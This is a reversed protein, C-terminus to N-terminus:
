LSFPGNGFMNKRIDSRGAFDAAVECIDINDLINQHVHCMVVASLREQTMSNRLWTKLSRLSSFSREAECSSVPCLLMLRVLQEVETFMVRVEPKMAQLAQKADALTNCNFQLQLFMPLQVALRTTDLEPYARLVDVNPSVQGSCLVDEMILYQSLGHSEPNFRTDLQAVTTDIFLFYASRYHQEANPAVYATAPGSLRCPPRRQRPVSIIPKPDLQSITGNVTDLIELFKDNSRFQSLQMRVTSVAQMPGELDDLTTSKPM